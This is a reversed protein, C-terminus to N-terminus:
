FFQGISFEFRHSLKKDNWGRDLPYGWSFRLDGMPSRWRMEMGASKKQDERWRMRQDEDINIGIDFFPVLNLGVDDSLMYIYEFNAFAMRTGGIRDGYVLHRPVIDRSRYGRVTEIGGMWFREFVPMSGSSNEFLKEGRLRLHLVSDETFTKYINYEGTLKIFADDGGLIDGAYEVGFRVSTGDSPRRHNTTDRGVSLSAVSATRQGEYQRLVWTTDDDFNNIKYREVRYGVLISSYEGIPYGVRVGSGLTERDYDTYDDEWRYANLSLSFDGDYLRPNFFSLDYANRLDSFLTRFGVGYGKGWLNSEQNSATVGFKSYTSYGVGGTIAGTSKERLKIKLDAEEPNATPVLESEALEFINLNNLRQMSRSLRAGNFPDGDALRM